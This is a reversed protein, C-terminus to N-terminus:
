FARITPTANSLRLPPWPEILTSTVIVLGNGTATTADLLGALGGLEDLEGAWGSVVGVTEGSVENSTLGGAGVWALKGTVSSALGVAGAGTEELGASLLPM